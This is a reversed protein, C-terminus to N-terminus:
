NIQFPCNFNTVSDISYIAFKVSQTKVNFVPLKARQTMMTAKSSNLSTNSSEGSTVNIGSDKSDPPRMKKNNASGNGNVITNNGNSNSNGNINSSGNDLKASPYKRKAFLSGNGNSNSAHSNNISQYKSDM